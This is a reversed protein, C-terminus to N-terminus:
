GRAARPSWCRPRTGARRSAGRRRPSRTAVGHRPAAHHPRAVGRPGTAREPLCASPAGPATPTRCRLARPRPAPGPPGALARDRGPGAPLRGLARSAPSTRSASRWRASARRSSARTASCPARRRRGPASSPGRARPLRLLRGVRRGVAARGRGRAARRASRSGTSPRRPARTPPSSAPRAPDRLQHLVAPGDDDIGKLLVFRVSPRGDPGATALAM